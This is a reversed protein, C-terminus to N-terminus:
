ALTLGEAVCRDAVQRLVEAPQAGSVLYRNGFVFAPVGSLGNRYAWEEEERVQAQARPDELAACFADGELGVERAIETLVEASAIDRQDQWHAVFVAHHYAEGQGQAAAFKAGVHALFTGGAGKLEPRKMEVGFRERAMQQVRPWGAFIRARYEAPIPPAGAPRLEYARWEVQVAHTKRLSDLGSEAM